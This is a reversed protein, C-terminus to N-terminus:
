EDGGCGKCTGSVALEEAFTIRFHRDAAFLRSVEDWLVTGLRAFAKVSSGQCSDHSKRRISCQCIAPIGKHELGLM